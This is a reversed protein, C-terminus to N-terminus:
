RNLFALHRASVHPVYIESCNTNVSLSCDQDSQMEAMTRAVWGGLIMLVIIIVAAIINVLTRRNDDSEAAMEHKVPDKVTANENVRRRPGVLGAQPAAGRPRFHVVRGADISPSPMTLRTANVGQM